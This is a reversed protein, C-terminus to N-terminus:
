QHGRSFGAIPSDFRLDTGFELTMTLVDAQHPVYGHRYKPQRLWMYDRAFATWHQM